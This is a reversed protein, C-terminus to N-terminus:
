ADDEYLPTVEYIVDYDMVDQIHPSIEKSDIGHFVGPLLVNVGDVPPGEMSDVETEMIVVRAYRVLYKRVNKTKAM